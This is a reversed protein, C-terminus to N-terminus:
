KCFLDVLQVEFTPKETPRAGKVNWTLTVDSDDAKDTLDIAQIDELPEFKFPGKKETTRLDEAYEAFVLVDLDGGENRVNYTVNGEKDVGTYITELPSGTKQVGVEVKRSPIEENWEVEWSILLHRPREKVVGVTVKPPPPGE